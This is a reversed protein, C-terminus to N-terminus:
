ELDAVKPDCQGNHARQVGADVADRQSQLLFGFRLLPLHRRENRDGPFRYGLDSDAHRLRVVM